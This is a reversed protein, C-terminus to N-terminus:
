CFIHLVYKSRIFFKTCFWVCHRELIWVISAVLHSLTRKNNNNNKIKGLESVIKCASISVYDVCWNTQLSNHIIKTTLNKEEMWQMKPEFEREGNIRFYLKCYFLIFLKFGSDYPLKVECSRRFPMWNIIWNVIDKSERKRLCSLM